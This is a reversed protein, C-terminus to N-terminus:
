YCAYDLGSILHEALEVDKRHVKLQLTCEQQPGLDQQVVHRHTNPVCYMRGGVIIGACFLRSVIAADARTLYASLIGRHNLIAVANGPDYLCDPEWTCKYRAGVILTKTDIHHHMGVARVNHITIVKYM